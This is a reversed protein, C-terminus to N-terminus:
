KFFNKKRATLIKWLITRKIKLKKVILSKSGFSLILAFSIKPNMNPENANKIAPIKM